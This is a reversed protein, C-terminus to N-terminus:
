GQSSPASNTASDAPPGLTPNEANSKEGEGGPEEPGITLAYVVDVLENATDEDDFFSDLVDDSVDPHKKKLSLEVMRRRVIPFGLLDLVGQGATGFLIANMESHRQRFKMPDAPEAANALRWARLADSRALAMLEGLHKFPVPSFTYSKGKIELTLGQAVALDLCWFHQPTWKTQM